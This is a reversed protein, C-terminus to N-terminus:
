FTTTTNISTIMKELKQESVPVRAKMPQAFCAIRFEEIMWRIENLKKADNTENDSLALYQNWLLQVTNLNTDIRSSGLKYNQLRKQIAQFYAPTRSLNDIAMDRLFGEYVLHECQQRIDQLHNEPVPAEDLVGIVARYLTLIQYALEAIQNAHQIFQKENNSICAAFADKSDPLRTHLFCAFVCAMLIDEVLEAKSAISSYMLATADIKPLNKKLYKVTPGLQLYILRAIGTPHYFNADYETEFLEISVTEEYDVLAAYACINEGNRRMMVQSEWHGFDWDILGSRAISEDHQIQRAFKANALEGFQQQLAKLNNSQALCKGDDELWYHMMLHRDISDRRWEDPSIQVGTMQQLAQQLEQYFNGEANIRQFCAETFESVPIFNKRLKRPLSRILVEIKQKVLGPVLWDFDADNFQNLLLLPIRVTVGDFENGPDFVYDLKLTQNRLQIEAPYDAVNNDAVQQEVLDKEALRIKGVLANSQKHLWAEFSPADVAEPPLREDYFEYLQRDSILIDRRRQRDEQHQYYDILKRNSKIVEINTQYDGEVLARQIFIERSQKADISAFNVRKGGEVLLGYIRTNRYAAVRGQRAQWHPEYYEYQHLHSADQLAWQPNFRAVGHAYLRATEIMSFAMIWKPTQKAMDSGPFISVQRNRTALFQRDGDYSAIHSPIGAFICRHIADAEAPSPNFRTKSERLQQKLQQYIDQWERVRMYSLYHKACWRSFRNRSLESKQQQLEQWLNVWFMFDSNEHQWLRHKEKAAQRNEVQSNRPDQISLASTIVLIESLCDLQRARLLMTALRPDVPLNAIQRGLELIRDNEDTARLEYLLRFGDNILRSDPADVFDFAHISGLKLLNMQLIVSALNTRLIEPETFESRNNFDDEDYLRICIGPALRGCRGSRQNASAQSTKEIPLRQIRSRWSYRSLRVLGTDIVYRIGPVTISTEAVNTALVIRRKTHRQFIKQQENHGLRGYLPLVDYERQYRKSLKEAAERIQRESAFFVLVDEVAVQMLEDIAQVLALHPDGDDQSVPRYRTEVPYTRGSINLIPADSFYQSFKQPDITASTVILKLEPRRPLIQKLYGLLLDINLSREHAEDIIITSYANLWRDNQIEALLIGDTMLKIYGAPNSRDSFRIKYGVAEGVQTQLEGAIRSSVSQAAIRRPQTHGIMGTDALGLDLCLQPLQTTKGSGTEGCVIVVQHKSIAEALEDRHDYFPLSQDLRSHPKQQRRRQVKDISHQIANLLQQKESKDNASQRLKKLRRILNPRDSGHCHQVIQKELSSQRSPM